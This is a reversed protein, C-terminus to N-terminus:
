RSGNLGAEHHEYKGMTGAAQPGFSHMGQIQVGYEVRNREHYAARAGKKGQEGDPVVEVEVAEYERVGPQEVGVM